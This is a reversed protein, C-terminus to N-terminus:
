CPWFVKAGCCISSVPCSSQSKLGKEFSVTLVKRLNGALHAVYWPAAVLFTVLSVGAVRLLVGLMAARAPRLWFEWAILPAILVMEIRSAVALGFCLGAAIWRWRGSLIASFAIAAMGFAWAAAYPRAEVSLTAIVPMFAM